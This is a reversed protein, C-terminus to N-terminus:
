KGGVKHRTPLIPVRLVRACRFKGESMLYEFRTSRGSGFTRRNQNDSTLHHGFLLSVRLITASRQPLAHKAPVFAGCQVDSLARGRSMGLWSKPCALAARLLAHVRIPAAYRNECEREDLDNEQRRGCECLARDHNALRHGM